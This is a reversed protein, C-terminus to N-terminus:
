VYFFSDNKIAKKIDLKKKVRIGTDYKWEYIEM